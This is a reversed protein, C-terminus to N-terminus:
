AEELEQALVSLRTSLGSLSGAIAGWSGGRKEIVADRETTLAVKAEEVELATERVAIQLPDGEAPPVGKELEVELCAVEALLYRYLAERHKRRLRKVKPTDSGGASALWAEIRAAVGTFHQAVEECTASLQTTADKTLPRSM